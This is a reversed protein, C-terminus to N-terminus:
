ARSIVSSRAALCRSSSVGYMVAASATIVVADTGPRRAGSSTVLAMTSVM